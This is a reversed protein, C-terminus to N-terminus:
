IILIFLMYHISIRKLHWTEQLLLILPKHEDLMYKTLTRDCGNLGDVNYSLINLQNTAMTLSFVIFVFPLSVRSLKDMSQM